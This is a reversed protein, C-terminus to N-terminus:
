RNWRAWFANRVLLKPPGGEWPITMIAHANAPDATGTYGLVSGGDRSLGTPVFGDNAGLARAQGNELAYPESRGQGEFSALVRAGDASADVAVLGFTLDDPEPANAVLPQDDKVLDMHPYPDGLDGVVDYVMGAATWVPFVGSAVRTSRRTAIDFSYLRNTELQDADLKGRSYVAKTSDPSFSWGQIAGRGTRVTKGTAINNIWLRDRGAVGVYKGDPSFQIDRLERTDVTTQVFTGGDSPILRLEALKPTAYAVWAGDPSIAPFAGHALRKPASGDANAVYVNGAYSKKGKVYVLKATGQAAARESAPAGGCAVLLMTVTLLLVTRPM